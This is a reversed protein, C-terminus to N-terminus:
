QVWHRSVVVVSLVSASHASWIAGLFLCDVDSHL